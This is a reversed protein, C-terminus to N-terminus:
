ALQPDLAQAQNVEEKAREVWVEEDPEIFNATWAYVNALQAHAL